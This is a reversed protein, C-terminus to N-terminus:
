DKTPRHRKVTRHAPREVPKQPSRGESALELRIREPTTCHFVITQGAMLKVNRPKYAGGKGVTVVTAQDTRHKQRSEPKPMTVDIKCLAKGDENVAQYTGPRVLTVSFLDGAPIVESNDLVRRKERETMQSIQVTYRGTGESAFFGMVGGAALRYGPESDLKGGALNINEQLPADSEEIRVNTRHIVQGDRQIILDYDGANEFRHFLTTLVTIASSDFAQQSFVPRNLLVKKKM